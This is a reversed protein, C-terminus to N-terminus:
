TWILHSGGLEKIRQHIADVRPIDDAVSTYSAFARELILLELEKDYVPVVFSAEFTCLTDGPHFEWMIRLMDEHKDLNVKGVWCSGFHEAYARALALSSRNLDADAEPLCGDGDRLARIFEDLSKRRANDLKSM